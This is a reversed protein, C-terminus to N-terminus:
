TGAGRMYRLAERARRGRQYSAYLERASRRFGHERLSIAIAPIRHHYPHTVERAARYVESRSLRVDDADTEDQISGNADVRQLEIEEAIANWSQSAQRMRRGRIATALELIRENSFGKLTEAKVAYGVVEAIAAAMGRGDRDKIESIWVIPAPEEDKALQRLYRRWATPTGETHARGLLWRAASALASGWQEQLEYRPWYDGAFALHLHPHFGNKGHTIETGRYWGTVRRKFAARRSFYGWAKLMLNLQGDLPQGAEHRMTLTLFSVRENNKACKEFVPAFKARAVSTRHVACHPCLAHKCHHLYVKGKTSVDIWSRGCSHMAESQRVQREDGHKLANVVRERVKLHAPNAYTDIHAGKGPESAHACETDPTDILAPNM